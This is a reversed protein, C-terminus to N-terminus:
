ANPYLSLPTLAGQSPSHPSKPRDWKRLFCGAAVSVFSADAPDAPCQAYEVQELDVPPMIALALALPSLGCIRYRDKLEAVAELAA